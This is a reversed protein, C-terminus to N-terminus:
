IIAHSKEPSKFHIFILNNTSCVMESYSGTLDFNYQSVRIQDNDLVEEVWMAHGYYGVTSIAVCSPSPVSSVDLGMQRANAPWQNANGRGGWYPMSGFTDNVKWAAYSVSERNYFGWPDIISDIPLNSLSDPYGGNAKAKNEIDVAAKSNLDLTAAKDGSSQEKIQLESILSKSLYLAKDVDKQTIIRFHAAADRISKLANLKSSIEELKVEEALVHKNVIDWITLPEITYRVKSKLEDLSTAEEMMELLSLWSINEKGNKAINHRFVEIIQGLTLQSTIADLSKKNSIAAQGKFHSAKEAVVTVYSGAVDPIYLLLKRLHTEVLYLERAVEEGRKQSLTDSIVSVEESEAIKDYIDDPLEDHATLSAVFLLGVRAVTANVIGIETLLKQAWDLTRATLALELKQMDQM